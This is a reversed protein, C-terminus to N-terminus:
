IRISVVIAVVFMRVSRIWATRTLAATPLAWRVNTSTKAYSIRINARSRNHITATRMTEMSAMRVHNVDSDQRWISANPWSMARNICKVSFNGCCLNKSFLLAGWCDEFVEDIDECHTKNASLLFGLPCSACRYYPHALIEACEAGLCFRVHSFNCIRWAALLQNSVYLITLIPSPQHNQSQAGFISVVYVQEDILVVAFEDVIVVWNLKTFIICFCKESVKKAHTKPIILPWLFYRASHICEEARWTIGKRVRSGASQWCQSKSRRDTADCLAKSACYTTLIYAENLRGNGRCKRWKRFPLLIMLGWWIVMRIWYWM